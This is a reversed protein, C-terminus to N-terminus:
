EASHCGAFSWNWSRVGALGRAGPSLCFIRPMHLQRDPRIQLCHMRKSDERGSTVTKSSLGSQQVPFNLGSVRGSNHHWDTEETRRLACYRKDHGAAPRGKRCDAEQCCPLGVLSSRISKPLHEGVRRSGPSTGHGRSLLGCNSILPSTTSPPATPSPPLSHVFSVVSQSVSLRLQAAQGGLGSQDVRDGVSKEFGGPQPFPMRTRSIPLPAPSTARSQPLITPGVPSTTPVSRAAHCDFPCFPSGSCRARAVDREPVAIGGFQAKLLRKIRDDSPVNKLEHGVRRERQSADRAM